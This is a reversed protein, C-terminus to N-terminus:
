PPCDGANTWDAGDTDTIDTRAAANPQTFATSGTFMNTKIAGSRTTNINTICVLKTSYGFTYTFDSVYATEWGSLDLSTIEKMSAFARNMNALNSSTEWGSLNLTALNTMGSFTNYLTTVGSVDWGSLDLSTLNVCLYFAYELNTLSSTINWGSLNLTTLNTMGWFTGDMNTVNSVDMGSLDMSTIESTYLFSNYLTNLTSGGTIVMDGVMYSSYNGFKFYTISEDTKVIYQFDGSAESNYTLSKNLGAVIPTWSVGGDNSYEVDHSMSILSGAESMLDWKIELGSEAESSGQGALTHMTHHQSFSVISMLLIFISLILKKM